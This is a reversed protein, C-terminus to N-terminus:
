RPFAADRRIDRGAVAEAARGSSRVQRVVAAGALTTGGCRRRTDGSAFARDCRREEQRLPRHRDTGRADAGSRQRRGPARPARLHPREERHPSQGSQPNATRGRRPTLPQCPYRRSGGRFGSRGRGPRRQVTCRRLSGDLSRQHSGDDRALRRLPGQAASVVKRLRLSARGGSRGRSHSPRPM